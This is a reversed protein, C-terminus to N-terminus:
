PEVLEPLGRKAAVAPHDYIAQLLAERCAERLDMRIQERLARSSSTRQFVELEKRIKAIVDVPSSQRQKDM